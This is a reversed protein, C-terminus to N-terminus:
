HTIIVRELEHHDLYTCTFAHQYWPPEMAARCGQCHMSPYTSLLALLWSVPMSLVCIDMHIHITARTGNYKQAVPLLHLVLSGRKEIGCLHM